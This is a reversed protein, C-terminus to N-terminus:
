NLAERLNQRRQMIQQRRAAVQAWPERGMGGCITRNPISSEKKRTFSLFSSCVFVIRKESADIPWASDSRGPGLMRGRSGRDCRMVRRSQWQAVTGTGSRSLSLSLGWTRAADPPFRCSHSASDSGTARRPQNRSLASAPSALGHGGTGVPQRNPARERSGILGRSRVVHRM